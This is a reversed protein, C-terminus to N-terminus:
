SCHHNLSRSLLSLNSCLIIDHFASVESQSYNMYDNRAETVCKRDTTNYTVSCFEVLSFDQVQEVDLSLPDVCNCANKIFHNMCHRRCKLDSYSTVNSDRVWQNIPSPYSNVCQSQYPSELRINEQLTIAM